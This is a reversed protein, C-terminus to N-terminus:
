YRQHYIAFASIFRDDKLDPYFEAVQEALHMHVPGNGAASIAANLGLQDVARLSHPAAGLLYDPHASAVTKAAAAHLRQFQEIDNGFRQQGGTLPRHDCGGYQYLVPLLTLGIGTRLAAAFAALSAGFVGAPSVKFGASSVM